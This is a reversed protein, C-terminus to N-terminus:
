GNARRLFYLINPFQPESFRREQEVKGNMNRVMHNILYSLLFYRFNSNKRLLEMYTIQMKTTNTDADISKTSEDPSELGNKCQARKTSESDNISGYGCHTVGNAEIVDQGEM